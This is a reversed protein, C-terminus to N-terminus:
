DIDCEKVVGAVAQEAADLYTEHKLQCFVVASGDAFTIKRRSNDRAVQSLWEAYSLNVDM